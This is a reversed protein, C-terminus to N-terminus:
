PNSCCNCSMASNGPWSHSESPGAKHWCQAKRSPRSNQCTAWVWVWRCTYNSYFYPGFPFADDHFSCSLFHSYDELQGKGTFIAFHTRTVCYGGCTAYSHPRIEESLKNSWCLHGLFGTSKRSTEWPKLPPFDPLGDWSVGTILWTQKSTSSHCKTHTSVFQTAITLFVHAPPLHALCALQSPSEFPYFM